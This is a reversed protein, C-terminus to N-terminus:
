GDIDRGNRGRPTAIGAAQLPKCRDTLVRNPNMGEFGYIRQHAQGRSHKQAAGPMRVYL